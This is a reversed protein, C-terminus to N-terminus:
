LAREPQANSRLWSGDGAFHIEYLVSGAARRVVGVSGLWAASQWGEPTPLCLDAHHRVQREAPVAPTGCGPVKRLQTSLAHSRRDIHQFQERSRNRVPGWVLSIRRAVGSKPAALWIRIWRDHSDQRWDLNNRREHNRFQVM